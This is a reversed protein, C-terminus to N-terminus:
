VRESRMAMATALAGFGVTPLWAALWPTVFGLTGMTLSLGDAVFFLFGLGVGVVFLIGLGGGRRFRTVLPVCLGIMLLASFFLSIRKHLWTQYVWVPRVGFGSNAVFYALDSVSMEEPDGSRGGASAPKMSGSYILTTLRNPEQNGRYYVIVNHLSWRGDVLTADDALIQERLLGDPDRRFIIVNKLSTSDASASGARIIDTGSRMWIPDRDGIKLKEKGYDGIGWSRLQPAAEPIADNNLLFNIGGVIFAFPLLLIMIRAPSVGAAWLATIENRYSLETLALLMALQVSIPLFTAVVGPSRDLLYQAMIWGNGPDLALIETSYTIVDLSLVFVSIGLLIALFRVAVIRTLMIAIIKM